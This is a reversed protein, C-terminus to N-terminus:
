FVLALQEGIEPPPFPIVREPDGLKQWNLKVAEDLFHTFGYDHCVVKGDLMGFNGFHVDDFFAPLAGGHTKAIQAKFEEESDFPKTRSQLLAVGMTDIDIVPAFWEELPTDKVAWWVKAELVNCFEKGSYEIKLVMEPNGLSYVRRFAGSGIQKDVWLNLAYRILSIPEESIHTVDSM